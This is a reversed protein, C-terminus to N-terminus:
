LEVTKESIKSCLKLIENKIINKDNTNLNINKSSAVVGLDRIGIASFLISTTPNAQSSLGTKIHIIASEVAIIDRAESNVIKKKIKYLLQLAESDYSKENSNKNFNNFKKYYNILIAVIIIILILIIILYLNNYKIM